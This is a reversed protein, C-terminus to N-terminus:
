GLARPWGPGIKSGAVVGDCVPTSGPPDPPRTRRASPNGNKGPLFPAPNECYGGGAQHRPIGLHPGERLIRNGKAGSLSAIFKRRNVHIAM